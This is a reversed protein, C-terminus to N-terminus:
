LNCKRNANELDELNKEAEKRQKKLDIIVEDLIEQATKM